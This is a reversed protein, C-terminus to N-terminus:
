KNKPNDPKWFNLLLSFLIVPVSSLLEAFGALAPPIVLGFHIYLAGSAIPMMILNYSIGWWFNQRIRRTTVVSIEIANVLGWLDNKVLVVDAAGIAVDTGAGVAIGVDAGALAPADNVGDGVFMVKKGMAQIKAVHEVKKDPLVGSLVKEKPIGVLRAIANAAGAQDGTVMWTEINRAVLARIVAGAEPRIVDTLSVMASLRGEVAVCVTTCGDRQMEEYTSQLCQLDIGQSTMWPSYGVLTAIQNIVCKVGGGPIVEFKEVSNFQTVGMKKAQAVLARGIPHESHQEVAGIIRWVELPDEDQNVRVARKVHLEGLTLTGTKDFVVTNITQLTELAAGGSRFLIGYRAGVGTAVMVATPVALSIACPCSIVLVTIAFRLAFAFPSWNGHKVVGYSALVFWLTFVIVGLLMIVSTMYSAAIDAIRQAKPKSYQADEVLQVIQALLSETVVRTVQFHLVGHKNLTGGIVISGPQKSVPASEGIIMAEDVASQGETVVGDTPVRSGPYVKLIDGRHVLAMEVTRESGDEILVASKAQLNMLANISEGTRSQANKEIYRGLLMLTLLLSSVEFFTQPLQQQTTAM